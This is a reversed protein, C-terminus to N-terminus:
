EPAVVSTDRLFLSVARRASSTVPDLATTMGQGAQRLSEAPPEIMPQLPESTTLPPVPITEPLLLRSQGVTEDAARWTLSSIASGAEAVSARLSPTVPLREPEMEPLEDRDTNKERLNDDPHFVFNWTERAKAMVWSEGQKDSSRNSILIALLVAAAAGLVAPLRVTILRRRRDVAVREAITAALGEPPLPTSLLRLGDELRSAAAHLMRCESCDALHRDLSAREAIPIGDLRQQLLNHSHTCNM